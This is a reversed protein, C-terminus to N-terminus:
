PALLFEAIAATVRPDLPLSPDTYTALNQSRDAPAARLVHNMGAIVALKARPNAAALRNADSITVQLDTTGQVILVPIRLKAIETAPDYKYWSILYPQVSPRFLALLQPDPSPVTQGALLSRDYQAVEAAIAPSAGAAQVQEELVVPARRGAGELSVFAKVAPDRQAALMGILSGESHGVISVSSFRKTSELYHTLTVADAVLDDFRLDSEQQTTRSTGVGRKDYRLTAIGAAALAAALLKYTGTKALPGNGDRDTPGSGAIILAVPSRGAGPPTTLTGSLQVGAGADVTVPTQVASPDARAVTVLAVFVGM